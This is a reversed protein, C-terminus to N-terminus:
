GRGTFAAIATAVNEANVEDRAVMNRLTDELGLWDMPTKGWAAEVADRWSPFTGQKTNVPYEPRELWWRLSALPAPQPTSVQHPKVRKIAMGQDETVILYMM